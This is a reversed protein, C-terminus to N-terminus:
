GYVAIGEKVVNRFFPLSDSNNLYFKESEPIISFLLDFKRFLELEILSLQKNYSRVNQVDVVILIDVDSEDDHSGNAYSGYLIIKRLKDGFLLSLKQELEPLASKLKSDIHELLNSM